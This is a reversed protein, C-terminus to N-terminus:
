YPKNVVKENQQASSIIEDAFTKQFFSHYNGIHYYPMKEEVIKEDPGNKDLQTIAIYDLLRNYVEAVETISHHGAHVLFAMMCNAAIQAKDFDFTQDARTFTQLDQLTVLVRATSRSVSAILPLSVQTEPNKSLKEFFTEWKKAYFQVPERSNKDLPIRYYEMKAHYKQDHTKDYETCLFEIRRKMSVVSFVSKGTNRGQNSSQLALDQETKGIGHTLAFMAPEGLEARSLRIDVEETNPTLMNKINEFNASHWASPAEYYTFGLETIIKLVIAMEDVTKINQISQLINEQADFFKKLNDPSATIERASCAPWLAGYQRREIALEEALYTLAYQSEPALESFEKVTLLQQRFRTLVNDILIKSIDTLVKKINENSCIENFMRIALGNEKEVISHQSLM